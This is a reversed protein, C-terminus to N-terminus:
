EIDKIWFYEPLRAAGSVLVSLSNSM